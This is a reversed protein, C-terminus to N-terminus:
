IPANQISKKTDACRSRKSHQFIYITAGARSGLSLHRLNKFRQMEFAGQVAPRRASVGASDCNSIKLTLKDLIWTMTHGSTWNRGKAFSATEVNYALCAITAVVRELGGESLSKIWYHISLDVGDQLDPCFAQVMIDRISTQEPDSFTFDIKQLELNEDRDTPLLTLSTIHVALEPRRLLTVLLQCARRKGDEHFHFDRYLHPEALTRYYKSVKSMSSLALQDEILAVIRTDLETSLADFSMNDEQTVWPFAAHTQLLTQQRLQNCM